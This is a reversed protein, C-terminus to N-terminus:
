PAPPATAPPPGGGAGRSREQLMRMEESFLKQAEASLAKDALAYWRERNVTNVQVKEGRWLSDNSALDPPGHRKRLAEQVVEASNNGYYVVVVWLQDKWYRLEVTTPEPLGEVAHASFAQRVVYPGGVPAAGLSEMGVLTRVAGPYLKEVEAPSMGFKAKGIGAPENEMAAATGGIPPALLLTSLLSSLILHRM